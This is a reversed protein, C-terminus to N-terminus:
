GQLRAALEFSSGPASGPGWGAVFAFRDGRILTLRWEFPRGRHCGARQLAFCPQTTVIDLLACEEATPLVPSIHETAQDIVVGCLRHLEDYLATHGFDADLLPAAIAAPLWVKDIALPMGGALRIRELFVLPADAALGLRGAVDDDCVTRLALVESRQEVGHAEISRFMSYLAGLPQEFEPRRVTSGRGRERQVLGEATLRRMAERATHRSVAYTETLERDTPFRSTFEGAALRARLDALLQAWLPVPKTRDIAATV